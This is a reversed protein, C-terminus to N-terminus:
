RTATVVFQPALALYRGDSIAHEIISLVEEINADTMQGSGRAYGAMNKIMPLLRGDTDPRTVVQVIINSFGAGAMLGYLKRGIDPTRCANSASNVLATWIETPIPEVIMMPWDGEIAHVKGDAKLVRWFERLTHEANDVYILTNRTTLRDLSGNPLPLTTGDCQHASVRDSIGAAVANDMTQSVFDSNIDLAHVHGDAGVWKAIEIATHGPGSGFDGVIHGPGIDAPEYLDASASSWQFMRQYRDLRDSDINIWHDRYFPDRAMFAGIRPKHKSPL